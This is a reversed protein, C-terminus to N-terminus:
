NRILIEDKNRQTFNTGSDNSTFVLGAVKPNYDSNKKTTILVVGNKANEGFIESAKEKEIIKVSEVIKFSMFENLFQKVLKGSIVDLKYLYKGNVIYIKSYSKTNKRGVATFILNKSNFKITDLLIENRLKEIMAKTKFNQSFALTSFAFLTIFLIKAM